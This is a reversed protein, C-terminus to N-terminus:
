LKMNTVSVSPTAVPTWSGDKGVPIGGITFGSTAALSPGTYLTTTARTASVGLSVTVHAATTPDKNLLVVNTEGVGPAVTYATFNLTGASVTTDLMPGQGALTFLLMGYYDPRAEQVVSNLDAIPTYGTSNGGGHFNVGTSGYMANTFLFDVVWLGSGVADSIGDAGGNYFSNAESMRFANKIHNSTAATQLDGLQTILSPDPMLLEALTSSASMGNGRYYHQTLLIVTSGEDSAFPVTWTAVDAASAPGTFPSNPAATHMPTYFTKWQALFDAYTWTSTRVGNHPYEDCENGIEFGYLSTGVTTAVYTAETAALSPNDAAMNVGYILTWGTAKMFGELATVDAPAIIGTTDGTGTQSWTTKDVSNGGVRLVSPGLLKFLGILDTNTPTFFGDNIHSKEYSLGAFGPGITGVTKGPTVTVTANVSPGADASAEAGGDGTSAEAMSVADHAADANGAETHPTESDVHADKEHGGTDGSTQADHM